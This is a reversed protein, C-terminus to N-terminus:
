KWNLSEITIKFSNGGGRISYRSQLHQPTNECVPPSTIGTVCYVKNQDGGVGAKKISKNKLATKPNSVIQVPLVSLEGWQM